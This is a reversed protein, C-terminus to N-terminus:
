PESKPDRSAAAKLGLIAERYERMKKTLSACEERTALRVEHVCLDCAVLPENPHKDCFREDERTM